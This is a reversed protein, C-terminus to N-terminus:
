GKGTTWDFKFDYTIGNKRAAERLLSRCLEYDPKEDFGLARVARLYEVFEGPLGECLAELSTNMKIEGIKRYKEATDRGPAGMWPLVGKALYVLTYGLSELDDRRSQEIGQHTHISAYRATGTIGKGTIMRIHEGKQNLVKKSLGFDILYIRHSNPGLGVTLNEPKIDRHIIRRHHVYEIRRLAQDAVLLTTKLSLRGGQAKMLVDLNRGLLDMVMVNYAGQTEYHRVLPFAQTLSAADSQLWLYIKCELILQPMDTNVDEMKVAYKEGTTAHTACWIEGFSGSGIKYDLHYVGCVTKGEM